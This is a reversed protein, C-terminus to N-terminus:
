PRPPLAPGVAGSVATLWSGRASGSLECCITMKAEDGLAKGAALNGRLEVETFVCDFPIYLLNQVAKTHLISGFRHHNGDFLPPKSRWEYLM